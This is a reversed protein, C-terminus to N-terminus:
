KVVETSLVIHTGYSSGHSTEETQFYVVTGDNMHLVWGHIWQRLSKNESDWGAHPVARVIRKGELREAVM